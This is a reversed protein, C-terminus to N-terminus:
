ITSLTSCLYMLVKGSFITNDVELFKMNLSSNPIIEDSTVNYWVDSVSLLYIKKSPDLDEDMTGDFWQGENNRDTSKYVYCSDDDNYGVFSSCHTFLGILAVDYPINLDRLIYFDDQGRLSINYVGIM